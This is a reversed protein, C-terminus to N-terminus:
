RGIGMLMREDDSQGSHGAKRGYSQSDRFLLERMKDRDQMV